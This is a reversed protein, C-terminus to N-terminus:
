KKSEKTIIIFEVLDNYYDWSMEVRNTEANYIVLPNGDSDYPSPVKAEVVNQTTKCSLLSLCLLVVPLLKTNKSIKKRFDNWKLDGGNEKYEKYKNVIERRSEVIKQRVDDSYPKYKKGKRSEGIKKCHEESLKKGKHAESMKRRAEESPPPLKQGKNAESIKRKTEESHKKGKNAESIRRCHEKSRPPKKKGKLAEAIKRNVVGGLNGGNGGDAINYEAKGNLREWYIACKEFKNIEEKTFDGSIIIEKKFNDKGYKEVARRLLIGSGIYNDNVDNCKHQGIYTKDNILNTTKYICFHKKM